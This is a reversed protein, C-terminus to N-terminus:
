VLFMPILFLPAMVVLLMAAVGIVRGYARRTRKVDRFLHKIKSSKIMEVCYLGEKCDEHINDLEYSSDIIDKKRLIEEIESLFFKYIIEDGGDEFNLKVTYDSSSLRDKPCFVRTIYEGHDNEKSLKGSWTFGFDVADGEGCVSSILTFFDEENYKKTKIIKM